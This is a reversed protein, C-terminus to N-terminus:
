SRLPCIHTAIDLIPFMRPNRAEEIPTVQAAARARGSVGGAAATFVGAGALAAAVAARVSLAAVAVALRDVASADPPVWDSGSADSARSRARPGAASCPRGRRSTRCKESTPTTQSSGSVSSWPRTWTRM